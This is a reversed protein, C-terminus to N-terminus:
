IGEQKLSEVAKRADRSLKKPISIHIKILIDGRGGHESPVGKGKVRLVEGHTVGEPIKVKIVGDLTHLSLEAGLLADTLKINQDMILNQGEKRFLPHTKAYIKIYLDGATGGSVAEGAGSLRMMEGNDIGPPIKVKIETERKLIGKGGCTHCKVKPVKGTGHCVECTAVSEFQGFFSKKVERISGKGNCTDCKVQETGKEAGTGSCTDCKSTKNLLVVREVGFVSEEFSLEIDISIDRGRKTQTRSRGGGGFVNGFIDGLDFEFGGGNGGQTFQSFDFGGFDQANFGGFGQAGGSFNAGSGFSDYQRRKEKDGLVAYAESIEKFKAENGGKKDPHYEHTLKRFAKKIEEESATKSVGLIKYYDKM